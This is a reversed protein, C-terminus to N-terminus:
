EESPKGYMVPMGEKRTLKAEELVIDYPDMVDGVDPIYQERILHLENALTIQACALRAVNDNLTKLVEVLESTKAGDLAKGIVSKDIGEAVDQSSFYM